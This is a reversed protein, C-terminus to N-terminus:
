RRAKKTRYFQITYIGSSGIKWGAKKMREAQKLGKLTRTNVTKYELAM